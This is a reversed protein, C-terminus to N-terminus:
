FLYVKILYLAILHLPYFSYFFLKINKGKEGNFFKLPILAVILGTIEILLYLWYNTSSVTQIIESIPMNMILSEIIGYIPLILIEILSVLTYYKAQKKFNDHYKYFIYIVLVGFFDGDIQFLLALAGLILIIIFKGKFKCSDYSWIAILGLVLDFITDLAIWSPGFVLRFTMIFPIESLVAIGLLRLLYKKKNRTKIYGEAIMFCFIPFAIKGIFHFIEINPLLIWSVHDLVMSIIALIKLQSSNM